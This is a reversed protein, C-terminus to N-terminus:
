IETRQRKLRSLMPVDGAKTSRLDSTANIGCTWCELRPSIRTSDADVEWDKPLYHRAETRKYGSPAITATTM